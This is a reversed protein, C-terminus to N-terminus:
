PCIRQKTKRKQYHDIIVGNSARNGYIATASADKLITFTEIEAPNITNLNANTADLPIGDVVYLPDANASLTSGARVRIRPGAGPQGTPATVQVGAAKGALLHGPSVIAGKNFEEDTITTQAATVNEKTTSGYGILVITDLESADEALTANITTQGDFAIEQTQYGLYSIVIIQNLEVNNLVYKGDFDTSTGNTTNKVVVSAGLIPLGDPDTVTGTVTGQAWMILPLLFLWLFLHLKRNM